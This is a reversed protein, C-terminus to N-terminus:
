SAALRKLQEQIVKSVLWLRDQGWLALVTNGQEDLLQYSPVGWLGLEYMALRNEEMSAEWGPTDIITKAVSWDLGAREVVIQMGKDSNTNIADVWACRIFASFFEVAKGQEEAWGYLSYARRTPEGIPDACPGFPVGAARAERGADFLIYKGKEITAPVGRMVMPLVPRLQLNVGLEKALKVTQDFAVATYPSRLSPYIVLTLQSSVNASNSANLPSTVIDKRPALLGREPALDLGLESLRKELHHLRDVGWYWEDGYFFMAGSYHKLNARRDNGAQIKTQTEQKSLEGFQTSLQQLTQVDNHWLATNISAAHQIFDENSLGALIAEAQAINGLSSIVANSSEAASLATPVDLGYHPAIHNADYCSLKSLLQPEPLNAGRVENVLHCHLEINYRQQLKGLLQVDDVQHFYEVIHPLGLQQRKREAKKRVRNQTQQSSMRSMMKSTLWRRVVGPDMTAAGGQEQFGQKSKDNSQEAM